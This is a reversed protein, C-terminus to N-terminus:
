QVGNTSDPEIKSDPVDVVPEQEAPPVEHIAIAANAMQVAEQVRTIALSQERSAPTFEIIAEAFAKGINRLAVYRAQQTGSPPHYTFIAELDIRAM